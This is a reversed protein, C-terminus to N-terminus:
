SALGATPQLSPRLPLAVSLRLGHGNDGASIELTGGHWEAIRRVLALGLGSGEAQTSVPRSFPTGLDALAGPPVGKGDDTVSLIVSDDRRAVSVVVHLPSGGHRLANDLLNRLLATLLPANGQIEVPEPAQLALEQNADIAGPALEAILDKAIVDLRCPTKAIAQEDIRALMLLQSILRTLRDCAGIVQNLAARTTARDDSDRAVEAQIRLAAIPTRLEHAANSTFRREQEFSRQVRSFLDNLRGVLPTIEAPVSDAAIPDLALPSRREVEHGLAVVPRLARSIAWGILVALLPVSLLLPITTNFAVRAALRERMAHDEAVQVIVRRHRDWQSYVRWHTGDATSDSFGQQVSSFPVAPAGVSKLVLDRGGRWVQFAVRQRDPAVIERDDLDLEELEHASQAVLLRASQSLQRDLLEDLERHADRYTFAIVGVWVTGIVGVLAILLRARLSLSRQRPPDSDNM